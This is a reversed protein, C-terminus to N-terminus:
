CWCTSFMMSGNDSYVYEGNINLTPAVKHEMSGSIVAVVPHTTSLVFGLAPYVLFKIILFAFIASLIWAEISDDEWVFKWFKVIKKWLNKIM